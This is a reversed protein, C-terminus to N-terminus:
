RISRRYPRRTPIIKLNLTGLCEFMVLLGLNSDSSNNKATWWTTGINVNTYDKSIHWNGYYRVLYESVGQAFIRM